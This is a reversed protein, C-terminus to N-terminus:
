RTPDLIGEVCMNYLAQYAWGACAQQRGSTGVPLPSRQKLLDSGFVATQPTTSGTPLQLTFTVQTNPQKLLQDVLPQCVLPLAAAAVLESASKGSHADAAVIGIAATTLVCTATDTKWNNYIAYGLILAAVVVLAIAANKRNTDM